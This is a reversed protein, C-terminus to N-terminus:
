CCDHREKVGVVWEWMTSIIRNIWFINMPWFVIKLRFIQNDPFPSELNKLLLSIALLKCKPFFNQFPRPAPWARWVGGRRGLLSLGLRRAMFRWKRGTCQPPSSPSLLTLHPPICTNHFDEGRHDGMPLPPSIVFDDLYLHLIILSEYYDFM